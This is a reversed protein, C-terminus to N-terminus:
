LFGYLYPAINIGKTIRLKYPLVILVSLGSVRVLSEFEGTDDRM